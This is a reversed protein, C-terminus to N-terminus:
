TCFMDAPTNSWLRALSLLVAEPCHALRVIVALHLTGCWLKWGPSSWLILLFLLLLAPVHRLPPDPAPELPAQPHLAVAQGAIYIGLVAVVLFILTNMTLSTVKQQPPPRSNQDPPRDLPSASTPCRRSFAGLSTPGRPENPAWRRLWAACAVCPKDQWDCTGSVLRAHRSAVALGAAVAAATLSQRPWSWEESSAMAGVRWGRGGRSTGMGETDLRAVGHWREPLRGIRVTSNVRLIQGTQGTDAACEQPDMDRDDDVERAVLAVAWVVGASTEGPRNMGAAHRCTPLLAFARSPDSGDEDWQVIANSPSCGQKRRQQAHKGRVRPENERAKQRRGDLPLEGPKNAPLSRGEAMGKQGMQGVAEMSEAWDRAGRTLPLENPWVGRHWCECCLASQSDRIWDVGGRKTLLRNGFYVSNAGMEDEDLLCIRAGYVPPRQVLRSPPARQPSHRSGGSAEQPMLEERREPKATGQSPSFFFKKRTGRGRRDAAHWYWLQESHGMTTGIRTAALSQPAKATGSTRERGRSRGSSAGALQHSPIMLKLRIHMVQFRHFHYLLVAIREDTRLASSSRQPFAHHVPCGLPPLLRTVPWTTCRGRTVPTFLVFVANPVPAFVFAIFVNGQSIGARRTHFDAPVKRFLFLVWRWFRSYM